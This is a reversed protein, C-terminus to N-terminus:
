LLAFRVPLTFQVRVARNRQKGPIWNPMGSVVRMAEEDCGSGIGRLLKVNSISGDPEIVFSIYVTGMIGLERATPPYKLNENFYRIREREGGPYEPQQEVITFIQKEIIEPEEEIKREVHIYEPIITKQDIEAQIQIDSVNENENEVIKLMSFQQPKLEPPPPTSPQETNLMEEEILKMETFNSSINRTRTPTKIQFLFFVMILSLVMGIEFYLGKKSELDAQSTKYRIM